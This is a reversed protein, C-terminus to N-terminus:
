VDGEGKIETQARPQPPFPPLACRAASGDPRARTEADELRGSSNRGEKTEKKEQTALRWPQTIPQAHLAVELAACRSPAKGRRRSPTARRGAPGSACCRLAACRVQRPAHLLLAAACPQDADALPALHLLPVRHMLKARMICAPRARRFSACDCRLRLRLARRATLEDM